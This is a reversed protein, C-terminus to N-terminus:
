MMLAGLIFGSMQFDPHDSAKELRKSRATARPMIRVPLITM